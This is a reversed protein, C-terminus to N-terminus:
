GDAHGRSVEFLLRRVIQALAVEEVEGHCEVISAALGNFDFPRSEHTEDLLFHHSCSSDSCM